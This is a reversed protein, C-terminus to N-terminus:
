MINKLKKKESLYDLDLYYGKVEKTKARTKEM